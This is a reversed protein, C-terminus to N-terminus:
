NSLLHLERWGERIVTLSAGVKGSSFPNWERPSETFYQLLNSAGEHREQDVRTTVFISRFEHRQLDSNWRIKRPKEAGSSSSFGFIGSGRAVVPIKKHLGRPLTSEVWIAANWFGKMFLNNSVDVISALSGPASKAYPALVHPPTVDYGMWADMGCSERFNGVTHTKTDNVRLFLAHLLARVSPEWEAPIIIDDGFIRVQRALVAQNWTGTVQRGAAICVMYFFISQIPFTLASGQTSFKRLKHLEPCKKDIPNHIYRTRSAIMPGLLSQNRRFARQVAWCTLRDSASKLDVTAYAGDISAKRASERSPEQDRFDISLGMTIARTREYLFDRIGQQIWQHCTPEKAILRPGTMTKPVAILVSHTEREPPGFGEELSQEGYSLGTSGFMDYPFYFALRPSWSEFNYKYRSDHLDAVAGPGHKCRSDEPEFFGLETSVEDATRQLIDLLVLESDDTREFLSGRERGIRELDCFHGPDFSDLDSGDGDWVQSPPPLTSEVDYFEKTAEYLYRPACDSKYNKGVYLLTRLFLVVNPDIDQKLCGSDEFLKGWLARFLRPVLSKRKSSRSLPEASFALFGRSLSIDLIKGLAPLDKTFVLDGRNSFLSIVRSLDREFEMQDSPLYVTIDKLIARYLGIFDLVLGKTM